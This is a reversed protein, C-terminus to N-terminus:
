QAAGRDSDAWRGQSRWPETEYGMAVLDEKAHLQWAPVTFGSVSRYPKGTGLSM